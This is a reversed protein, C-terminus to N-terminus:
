AFSMAELEAHRYNQKETKSHKDVIDSDISYNYTKQVPSLEITTDISAHINNSNIYQLLQNELTNNDDENNRMDQVMDESINNMESIEDDFDAIKDQIDDMVEAMPLNKNQRNIKDIMSGIQLRNNYMELAEKAKNFKQNMANFTDIRKNIRMRDALLTLAKKKSKDDKPMGHVTLKNLQTEIMNIKKDEYEISVLNRNIMLDYNDIQSMILKTEKEECEIRHQERQVDTEFFPVKCSQLAGMKFNM